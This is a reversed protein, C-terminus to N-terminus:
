DKWITKQFKAAQDFRVDNIIMNGAIGGLMGIMECNENYVNAGMDAGCQGPDFVYVNRGQFSYLSVSAGTECLHLGNGNHRILDRICDPADKDIKECSFIMLSLFLILATKKM